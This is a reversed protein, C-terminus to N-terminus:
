NLRFHRTEAAPRPEGPHSTRPRCPPRHAPRAVNGIWHEEVAYELADVHDRRHVILDVAGWELIGGGAVKYLKRVLALAM